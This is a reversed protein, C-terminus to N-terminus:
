VTPLCIVRKGVDQRNILRTDAPCRQEKLPLMFLFSKMTIVANKMSDALWSFVTRLRNELEVPGEIGGRKKNM